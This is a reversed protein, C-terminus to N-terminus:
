YNDFSFAVYHAAVAPEILYLYALVTCNKFVEFQM